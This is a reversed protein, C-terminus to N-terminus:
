KASKFKSKVVESGILNWTEESDNRTKVYGNVAVLIIGMPVGDTKPIFANSM